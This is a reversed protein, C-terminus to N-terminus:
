LGREPSAGVKCVVSAIDDHQPVDGSFAIAADHLAQVLQAAPDGLHARLFDLVRQAGFEVEDERTAEKVGDTLLVITDGDELPIIRTSSYDRDPFMGLPPGTSDMVHGIEGSSRLLYGSVHGANVYEL